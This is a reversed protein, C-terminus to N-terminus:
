FSKAAFIPHIDKLKKLAATGYWPHLQMVLRGSKVAPDAATLAEAEAINSVNFIFIGRLEGEDLMPDALCLKGEDMLHSIYALQATQINHAEESNQSRSPGSQLLALVYQSMGYEDAGVEAALAANYTPQIALLDVPQEDQADISSSLNLLIFLTAFVIASRRM